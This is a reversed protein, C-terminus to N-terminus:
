SGCIGAYSIKILYSDETFKEPMPLDMLKLEANKLLVLAKMTM